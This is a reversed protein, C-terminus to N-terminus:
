NKSQFAGAFIVTSTLLQFLIAFTKSYNLMLLSTEYMEYMDYDYDYDSYIDEFLIVKLTSAAMHYGLLGLFTITAFVILVVHCCSPPNGLSKALNSVNTRAIYAFTCWAVLLIASVGTLKVGMTMIYTLYVDIDTFTQTEDELSYMIKEGLNTTYETGNPYEATYTWYWATVILALVLNITCMVKVHKADV